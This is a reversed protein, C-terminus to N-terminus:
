GGSGGVGCHGDRRCRPCAYCWLSRPRTHRPLHYLCRQWPAAGPLRRHAAHHGGGRCLSPLFTTFALLRPLPTNLRLLLTVCATASSAATSCSNRWSRSRRKSISACALISRCGSNVVQQIRVDVAPVTAFTPCGAGGRALWVCGECEGGAAVNSNRLADLLSTKGHDVHGMVTVVPPRPERAAAAGASPEPVLLM